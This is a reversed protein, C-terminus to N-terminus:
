TQESLYIMVRSQIISATEQATKDGAFFAEAEELVIRVAPSDYITTCGADYPLALAAAYLEASCEEPYMEVYAAEKKTYVDERISPFGYRRSQFDNGMLEKLFAWAADTQHGTTTLSIRGRFTLNSGNGGAGPYGILTRGSSELPAMVESAFNSLRGFACEVQLLPNSGGVQERCVTLLDYFDQTEFNCTGASFDVFEGIDCNLVMELFDRSGCDCLTMDEPLAQAVQCMESLSWGPETGVYESPASMTHLYFETPFLYLGGYTEEILEICRPIYDSIALTDDADILPRLDALYGKRAYVQASPPDEPTMGDWCILDPPTDSQLLLQLATASEYTIVTIKYDPNRRNFSNMQAAIMQDLSDMWTLDPAFDLQPLPVALYVPTKEPVQDAPVRSLYLYESDSLFDHIRIALTNEDEYGVWGVCGSLDWDEWSLIETITGTELDAGRLLTDTLLYFDYTGGGPLITPWRSDTFLAEGIDHTKWDITYLTNDMQGYLYSRGSSDYCISYWCDESEIQRIMNGSDDLFSISNMSVLLLEDDYGTNFDIIFNEDLSIHYTDYSMSCLMAGDYSWQELQGYYDTTMGQDNFVNHSHALWVCDDLPVVYDIGDYDMLEDEVPALYPITLTCILHQAENYIEVTSEGATNDSIVRYYHNGKASLATDRDMSSTVYAYTGDNISAETWAAPVVYDGSSHVEVPEPSVVPSDVPASAEAEGCAALTFLLGVTLLLSLIRKM